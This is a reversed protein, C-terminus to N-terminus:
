DRGDAQRLVYDCPGRLLLKGRVHGLADHRREVLRENKRTLNNLADSGPVLQEVPLPQRQYARHSPLRVPEAGEDDGGLGILRHERRPVDLESAPDGVDGGESQAVGPSEVLELSRVDRRHLGEGVRELCLVGVGLIVAARKGLHRHRDTRGHAQGAVPQLNELQAREEVVDALDADGALDDTLGARERGFFAPLHAQMRLDARLDQLRDREELGHPRDNAGRM